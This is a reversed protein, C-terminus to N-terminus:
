TKTIINKSEKNEKNKLDLLAFNFDKNSDLIVKKM